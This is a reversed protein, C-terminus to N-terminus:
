QFIDDGGNLFDDVHVNTLGQLKNSSKRFFFAEDVKSCNFGMKTLEDKVKEYFCRSAENLGYVAKKLRWIYRTNAEKPPKIFVDRELPYGQLFASKVDLSRCEWGESALIALALRISEKSCTPSNTNLSDVEQDEYGRAVLRAKTIVSGGKEKTSLVWRTSIVHQDEFEVEEYADNNRWSELEKMKAINISENDLNTILVETPITEWSVIPDSFDYWRIEDSLEDRINFCSKNAGTAKGARSHVYGRRWEDDNLKYLINTRVHPMVQDEVQNEENVLNGSEDREIEHRLRSQIMSLPENEEEDIESLNNENDNEHVNHIHNNIQPDTEHDNNQGNCGNNQTDDHPNDPRNDTEHNINHANLQVDNQHTNQNDNTRKVNQEDNRQDNQQDDHESNNQQEEVVGVVNDCEDSEYDMLDMNVSPVAIIQKPDDIKPQENNREVIKVSGEAVHSARSVHVRVVQNDYRVLIQKGEQDIVKAPGHWQRQGDRKFYIRDGNVFRSECSTRINHTLARKIRESSEAKVFNERASRMAKLNQEVTLSAHESGMAPLKDTVVSPFNPNKGFVLTNPSFGQHGHLSNKASVAWATATELSCKSEEMTKLASEKIVANHRECVGNSWPSEAATKMMTINLQECMERYESNSFEGGNDALFQKPSGFYSVWTKMVADVIRDQRKSIRVCAVSYRTFLDILHLIYRGHTLVILDMAVVDNFETALPLSVIPTPPARKFQKCVNCGQSFSSIEEILRKENEANWLKSMQVLKTLRGASCHGFQRHLKEAAKKPEFSEDGSGTNSMLTIQDNTKMSDMTPTLPIAYHGSGTAILTQKEGFMLAQDNTFDLITGAM